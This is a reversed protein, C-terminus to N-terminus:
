QLMTIIRIEWGMLVLMKAQGCGSSLGGSSIGTRRQEPTEHITTQWNLIFTSGNLKLASPFQCNVMKRFVVTLLEGWTGFSCFVTANDHMCGCGAELSASTFLYWPQKALGAGTKLNGYSGCDFWSGTSRLEAM